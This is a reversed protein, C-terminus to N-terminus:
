NPEALNKEYEQYSQTLASAVLNSIVGLDPTLLNSIVGLDPTLVNSIVGLDPTLVNSIFGLDPTLLNSIVGLDPTLLNFGRNLFSLLIEELARARTALLLQRDHRHHRCGPCRRDGVDHIECCGCCCLAWVQQWLSYRCPLIHTM